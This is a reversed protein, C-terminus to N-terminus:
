NITKMPAGNVERGIERLSEATTNIRDNMYYNTRIFHKVGRYVVWLGVVVAAAVGGTVAAGAVGVGELILGVVTVIGAGTLVLAGEAIPIFAGRSISDGERDLSKESPLIEQRGQAELM